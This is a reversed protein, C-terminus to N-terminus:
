GTEDKNADAQRAAHKVKAAEVAEWVVKLEEAEREAEEEGGDRAHGNHTRLTWKSALPM